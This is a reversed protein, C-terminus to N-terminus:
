MLDWGAVYRQCSWLLSHGTAVQRSPLLGQGAPRQCSWLLSNETAMLSIYLLGTWCSVAWPVGIRTRCPAPLEMASQIRRSGPLQVAFRDQLASSARCCISDQLSSDASAGCCSPGEAVQSSYPLGTSCLMARGIAFETRCGAQKGVMCSSTWVLRRSAAM